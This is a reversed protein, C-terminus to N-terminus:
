RIISLYLNQALDYLPSGPYYRGIGTAPFYYNDVNYGYADASSINDESDVFLEYNTYLDPHSQPLDFGTASRMLYRGGELLLLTTRADASTGVISSHSSVWSEYIASSELM